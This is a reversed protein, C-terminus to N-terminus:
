KRKSGNAKPRELLPMPQEPNNDLTPLTVTVDKLAAPTVYRSATAPDILYWAALQERTMETVLVRLFARKGTPDVGTYVAGKSFPTFM